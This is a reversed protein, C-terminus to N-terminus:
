GQFNYMPIPALPSGVQLTIHQLSELVIARPDGEYREGDVFVSVTGTFGAVDSGSLARGWIDFVQGLTYDDANPPEIHILGSADHTHMWYFCDGNQVFGNQIVPNVIGIAAPIAVREGEVFLSLHAHYHLVVSEICGVGTVAEGQGGTATNGSPFEERGLVSGEILDVPALVEPDPEPETPPAESETCAFLAVTLVYIFGRTGSRARM